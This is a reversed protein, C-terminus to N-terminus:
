HYSHTSHFPESLCHVSAAWGLRRTQQCLVTFRFLTMYINYIYITSLSFQIHAILNKDHKSEKFM